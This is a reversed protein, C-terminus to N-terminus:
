WKNTQIKQYKLEETNKSQKDDSSNGKDDIKKKTKPNTYGIKRTESKRNMNSNIGSM